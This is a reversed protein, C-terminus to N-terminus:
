AAYDVWVILGDFRILDLPPSRMSTQSAEQSDTKPHRVGAPHV